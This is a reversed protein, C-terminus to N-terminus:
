TESKCDNVQHDNKGFNRVCAVRSAFKSSREGYRLDWQFCTGLLLVIPCALHSHISKIHVSRHFAMLM